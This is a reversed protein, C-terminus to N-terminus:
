HPTLQAINVEKINNHNTVPIGAFAEPLHMCSALLSYSAIESTTM